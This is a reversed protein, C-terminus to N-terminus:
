QGDTKKRRILVYAAGGAALLMLVISVTILLVSEGTDPTDTGSPAPSSVSFSASSSTKPYDPAVIFTVTLSYDGDELGDLYDTSLTLDLSGEAATFDGASLVTQDGNPATVTVFGGNTFKEYVNVNRLDPVDKKDFKITIPEGSGKTYNQGNGEAVIFQLFHHIITEHTGCDACDRELLGPQGQVATWPYWNHSLVPIERTETHSADNRCTRTEEGPTKCTAGKTTRWSGWDHGLAAVETHENRKTHCVTCEEHKAGSEGCTPETDTVWEWTHSPVFTPNNPFKSQIDSIDHDCPYNVTTLPNSDFAYDGVETVYGITIEALSSCQAFGAYPIVSLNKPLTVSTLGTCYAFMTKGLNTVGDPITVSTLASCRYFAYSGISTVSNPIEVSTLASCMYFADNGISTVSNPIEVSTLSTCKYFGQNGISTVSNPIEVSTLASCYFFANEVINTVGNEIIVKKIQDRNGGWPRSTMAGTGSITLVGDTDLTYTVNDGCSGSAILIGMYPKMEVTEEVTMVAADSSSVVDSSSVAEEESALGRLFPVTGVALALALAACGLRFLRKLKPHNGECHLPVIQGIIKKFDKM